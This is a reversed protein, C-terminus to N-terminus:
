GSRNWIEIVRETFLKKRERLYVREKTLKLSRGGTERGEQLKLVPCAEAEYIGTLMKYLEIM